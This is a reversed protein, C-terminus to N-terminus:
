LIYHCREKPLGKRIDDTHSPKYRSSLAHMCPPAAFDGTNSSEKSRATSRGSCAKWM